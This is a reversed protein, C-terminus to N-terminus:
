ETVEKLAGTETKILEEQLKKNDLVDKALYTEGAHIFKPIVVAYTKGKLEFTPAVQSTPKSSRIEAIIADKEDLDAKLQKAESVLTKNAEELDGIVEDNKKIVEKLQSIETVLQDNQATLEQVKTELDVKGM